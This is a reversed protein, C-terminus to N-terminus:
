NQKTHLRYSIGEITIFKGHLSLRDLIASAAPGSFISGWQKPILNTTLITPGMESRKSIIQFLIDTDEKQHYTYGLEDICLVRIRAYYEIKTSPSPGKKIRSVLDFASIFATSNGKLIAEYCLSSALHSKGLGADGIIVLNYAKEIWPSHVYDLIEGKPIKPNFRWDFQEFTKVQRIGSRALLNKIRYQNRYEKEQTLFRTLTDYTSSEIESAPIKFRLEQLFLELNSINM